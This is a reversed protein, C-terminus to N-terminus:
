AACAGLTSWHIPLTPPWCRTVTNAYSTSRKSGSHLTRRGHPSGCTAALLGRSSRLRRPSRATDSVLIYLGDLAGHFLDRADDDRYVDQWQEPQDLVSLIDSLAILMVYQAYHTATADSRLVVGDEVRANVFLGRADRLSEIAFKVQMKASTFFM